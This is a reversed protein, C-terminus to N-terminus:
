PQMTVEMPAVPSGDSWRGMFRQRSSGGLAVECDRRVTACRQLGDLLKWAGFWDLADPPNSASSLPFLHDALLGVSGRQDSRVRVYDRNAPRVHGLAAWLRRAGEEGVRDDRDSALVLLLTSRPIRRLPRLGGEEETPPQLAFVAGPRPLGGAAADAALQAAMVAGISHGVLVVAGPQPRVHGSRCLERLAARLGTVSGARRERLGIGRFPLNQFVVISGRGVLHDIWGQYADPEVGQTFVVLPARAPTPQAPEFITVGTAAGGIRTSRARTHRRLSGGPGAAPQAPPTVARTTAVAAPRSQDPRGGGDACGAALLAAAVLGLAARCPRTRGDTPSPRHACADASVQVM